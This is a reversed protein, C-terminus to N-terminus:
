WDLECDYLAPDADSAWKMDGFQLRRAAARGVDNESIKFLLDVRGGTGPVGPTPLTTVCGRIEPATELGLCEMLFGAADEYEDERLLTGQWVMVPGQMNGVNRTQKNTQKHRQPRQCPDM